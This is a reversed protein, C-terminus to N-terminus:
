FSPKCDFGHHKVRWAFHYLRFVPEWLCESPFYNVLRIDRKLRQINKNIHGQDHSVRDDYWGFNGGELIENLLFRGRREDVPMLLYREELAFVERMVYMVAGAIQHLGFRKLLSIDRQQEEKTFGLKLLYYYDLLQRLGIGEHIIHNNIHALMYIRNFSPKPVNISGAGEPLEVQHCFQENAQENFWKQLRHNHILNNMFSPRYHVEVEVNDAMGADIHHYLAKAGRNLCRVHSIVEKICLYTGEVGDRRGRVWIDIDGPTRRRPNPYMLANGQGKLICTGFGHEQYYQSVQVATKNIHQNLSELQYCDGYWIFLLNEDPRIAKPLKEVAQFLIALLGQQESMKYIAQWEDAMLKKELPQGNDIALRLLAFFAGQM